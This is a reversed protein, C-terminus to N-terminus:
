LTKEARLLALVTGVDSPPAHDAMVERVERRARSGGRPAIVDCEAASYVGALRLENTTCFGGPALWASEAFSWIVFATDITLANM